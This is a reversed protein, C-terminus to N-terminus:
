PKRDYINFAFGDRHDNKIQQWESRDFDPFYADGGYSQKIETLYLRETESLLQEYIEAGGFVFIEGINNASAFDYAANLGQKPSTSLLVGEPLGGMFYNENRTVVVNLRGPMARKQQGDIGRIDCVSEYTARGMILPKGRTVMRLYEMDEPIDWPIKNEKGIVRNEDMAAIMSIIPKIMLYIYAFVNWNDFYIYISM